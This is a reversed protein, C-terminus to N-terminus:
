IKNTARNYHRPWHRLEADQIKWLSENNGKKESESDPIKDGFYSELM